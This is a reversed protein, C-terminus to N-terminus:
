RLESTPTGLGVPNSSGSNNAKGKPVSGFTLVVILLAVLVILLVFAAWRKRSSWPVRRTPGQPRWDMM